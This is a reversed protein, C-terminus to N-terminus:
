QKSFTIQIGADIGLKAAQDVHPAVGWVTASKGSQQAKLKVLYSVLNAEATTKGSGPDGFTILVNNFHGYNSANDPDAFYLNRVVPDNSELSSKLNSIVRRFLTNDVYYAYAMEATMFQTNFPAYKVNNDELYQIAFTKFESIDSSM